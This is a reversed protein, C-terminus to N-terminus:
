SIEICVQRVVTAGCPDVKDSDELIDLKGWEQREQAWMWQSAERSVELVQTLEM